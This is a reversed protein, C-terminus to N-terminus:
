AYNASLRFGVHLSDGFHRTGGLVLLRNGWGLHYREEQLPSAEPANPTKTVSQQRTRVDLQDQGWWATLWLRWATAPRLELKLHYDHLFASGQQLGRNPTAQLRAVGLYLLDAWTRRAGVQLTARSSLPGHAMVRGSILSLGGQVHWATDSAQRLSVDIVSSLRGGYRAPFGGRYFRVDGVADANLVSLFGFLHNAYYIPEGDLLLLNQDRLGGRVFISSQGEVGTQVGAMTGLVRQVDPEGLLVPRVLVEKASLRVLETNEPAFFVERQRRAVVEAEPLREGADLLVRLPQGVPLRLVLVTDRYGVYSIRLRASDASTSIRFYGLSDTVAGSASVYDYVNANVLPTGS